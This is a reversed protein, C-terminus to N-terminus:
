LGARTVNNGVILGKICIFHKQYYQILRKVETFRCSKPVTILSINDVVKLITMLAFDESLTDLKALDWLLIDRENKITEIIEDFTGDNLSIYERISGINIVELGSFSLIELPLKFGKLYISSKKLNPVLRGIEIVGIDDTIITVPVDNQFNFYSAIGVVCETQIKRSATTNFAFCKNGANFDKEFSQGTQHLDFHNKVNYYNEINFIKSKKSTVSEHPKSVEDDKIKLNLFSSKFDQANISIKEQIDSITENIEEILESNTREEEQILKLTEAKQSNNPLSFSLSGVPEAIAEVDETVLIDKKLANSM